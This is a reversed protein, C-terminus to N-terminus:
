PSGLSFIKLLRSAENSFVYLVLVKLRPLPTGQISFLPSWWISQQNLSLDNHSEVRAWFVWPKVAEWAKWISKIVFFGQILVHEQMILLTHLGIGKWTPRNITFGFSICHQVLFNWAEDGIIAHM